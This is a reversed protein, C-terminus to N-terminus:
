RLAMGVKETYERLSKAKVIAKRSKKEMDPLLYEWITKLKNLLQADGGEIYKEYHSLMLGHMEYVKAYLEDQNLCCQRKSEIALSPRALLGRGTMIGKLDPYTQKLQEIDAATGIDGNYILPLTCQAYFQGFAELDVNGKYQQKGIRPHLIIQKLPSDNLLPLIEKWENTELHGLRMKISFSIGEYQQMVKLLAKVKQPSKLLGAGKGRNAILPFPCGMNLDIEKYGQTLVYDILAKLEEPESALVQPVMPTTANLPTSIDRVDKNRIKEKELRVFPSYYADIGGFVRHHANRWAVNTFGQLPASLITFDKNM